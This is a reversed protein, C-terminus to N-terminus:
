YRERKIISNVIGQISLIFLMFLFLSPLVQWYNGTMLSNRSSAVLGSWEYTTSISPGGLAGLQPITGGLFLSFLGLHIFIYLTQITHQGWQEILRSFINPTIYKTLIRYNSAGLVKASQIYEKRTLNLMDNGIINVMMPLVLLTLIIVELTIRMWMGESASARDVMLIPLLLLYAVLSLPLFQMGDAISKIVNRIMKPLFFTYIAGFFYGSFVRLFGILISFVITFKAGVILKELISYGYADSGLILEQSPPHPPTSKISGDAAHIYRIQKVPDDVLQPYVISTILILFIFLFGIAFQKEQMHIKFFNLTSRFKHPIHHWIKKINLDSKVDVFYLNVYNGERVTDSNTDNRFLLLEMIYYLFYFPTFLMALMLFNNFPDLNATFHQIVGPIMFVTEIVVLSSLTIWLVSKSQYFLSHVINRMCHKLLVITHTLGKSKAFQSYDKNLEEKLLLVIMRYFLIAPLLGLSIIPALYIKEGNIYVINMLLVDTHQYFWVIFMQFLFLYLLDPIAITFESLFFLFKSWKGPLLLTIIALILGIILAFIFSGVLIKFSYLYNNWFFEQISKELIQLTRPPHYLIVWTDPHFLKQFISIISNFFKVFVKEKSSFFIPTCSIFLIGLLGLLYKGIFKFFEKLLM